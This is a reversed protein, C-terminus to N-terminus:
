LMEKEARHALRRSINVPTDDPFSVALADCVVQALSVDREFVALARIGNLLQDRKHELHTHADEIVVRRTEPDTDRLTDVITGITAEFGPRDNHVTIGSEVAHLSIALTHQGTPDQDAASGEGWSLRADIQQKVYPPLKDIFVEHNFPQAM